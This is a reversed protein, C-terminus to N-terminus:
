IHIMHGKEEEEGEEEQEAEENEPQAQCFGDRSVSPRLADLEYSHM